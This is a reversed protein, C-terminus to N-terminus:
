CGAPSVMVDLRLDVTYDPRIGLINADFAAHHLKCLALGSPVVAEGRPHTDPLIHAAEVAM